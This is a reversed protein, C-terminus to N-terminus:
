FGSLSYEPRTELNKTKVLISNLWIPAPPMKDSLLMKQWKEDTLRDSSPQTFEYYSFTAGKALYLLGNIECVTYLSNGLGVGEQLCQDNFTYVDTVVSIYKDPTELQSIQMQAELIDITLMEIEGGIWTMRVFEESTIQQGKLEKESIKLFFEAIEKLKNNRETLVETDMGAKKLFNLNVTLFELSNKWFSVNPEVYSLHLPPPPGGGEGAQAGYPQKVYLVMDHKLETWSALATNLNKKQWAPNKMFFPAETEPKQLGILCQMQKSYVSEDWANFDKFKNQLVKLSDSYNAWKKNEEFTNLLINEAEKSGMAAFIDLGKPFARKPPNNKIEILRQLIEGDFTYRGATFLIQKKAFEEEALKNGSRFKIQEPDFDKIVERIRKLQNPKILDAIPLNDLSKQVHIMSLNDEKGALFGVVKQFNQYNENSKKNNEILFAMLVANALSADNGLVMPASNLWKVCRFYKKLEETKTYNGRPKFQSHDFLKYDLFKSGLPVFAEAAINKMEEAYLAQFTAPIKQKGAGILECAIAFYTANWEAAKKLNADQSSGAIKSAETYTDKVIQKILDIFKEKELTQIQKSMHMHLVQLFLDTTIFNPIYQYQNQDYIYFLQESVDPVIAFGNQLIAKKLEDPINKYQVRNVVYDWNVSQLNDKVDYRKAYLETEKTQVKAIFEKEEASLNIKFNEIDFIPQYWEFKKFYARLISNEFLYGHRAYIENRLYWLQEFNKQSIDQKFNFAPPFIRKPYFEKIFDEKYFAELDVKEDTLPVKENYDASPLISLTPPELTAQQVPANSENKAKENKCAFLLFLCFITFFLNKKM